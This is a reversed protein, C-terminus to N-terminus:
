LLDKSKKIAEIKNNVQLKFFINMMHKKVTHTSIFLSNGIHEYTNGKEVLRLIELERASLLSANTQEPTPINPATFFAITKRAISPSMQAGGHYVDLITKLIFSPKENKLLYGM